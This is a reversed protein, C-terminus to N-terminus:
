RLRFLGLLSSSWTVALIMTLPTGQYSLQYLIQRGHLLGQNSEQIPFIGQLLSLNDMGTNMPKGPPDSPLSDVQLSPSKPEIGPNPLDGPFPSQSGVGAKQGPSNMSQITWPTEFFWVHSLLKWVLQESIQYIKYCGQCYSILFHSAKIWENKLM